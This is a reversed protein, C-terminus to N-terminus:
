LKIRHVIYSADYLGIGQWLLMLQAVLVRAVVAYTRYLVRAWLPMPEALGNQRPNPLDNASELLRLLNMKALREQAAKLDVADEDHHM